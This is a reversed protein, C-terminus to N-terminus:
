NRAHTYSLVCRFSVDAFAEWPQRTIASPSIIGKGQGVAAGRLIVYRVEDKKEGSSAEKGWLAWEGIKEDLGRIGFANPESLMVPPPMPALDVSGPVPAESGEYMMRNMMESMSNGTGPNGSVESSSGSTGSIPETGELLAYLWEAKTPLRRGYFHAYASAGYVTVRLVPCSAHAPNNVHFNGDRFVIPEYGEFIEGLLLWITGDSQVIGKEVYVKSRVQNLFEVYQHNTVRTEDMYFPNVDVTKGSDSGFHDPFTFKGGPILDLTVGDKGELTKPLPTPPSPETERLDKTTTRLSEPIPASKRFREKEHWYWFGLVVLVIAALVIGTRIRNRPGLVSSMRVSNSSISWNKEGEKSMVGSLTTQIANKMEGVSSTREDREEATAAQIIRDLGRFFPSEPDRLSAMKLPKANRSMEGAIAEFLIKGLSYIDARHDTRKLDLFQEPAMYIITGKVDISRTVPKWRSSRALGFDAIKPVRGDMLINKPKLDRHVIQSEHMTQVGDLIPLFYNLLWDRTLAEEPYFGDKSMTSGLTGGPIYEMAIYERSGKEDGGGVPFSGYDYIQLINPHRLQAMTQVENRFRQLTTQLEEEYEGSVELWEKSVIKIAVDRKLALQHARYVEGMGGRGIFELIVWKDNLVTGVELEGKSDNNM